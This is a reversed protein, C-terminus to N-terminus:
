KQKLSAERESKKQARGAFLPKGEVDKDNLEDVASRAADADEFNIFGFGKSKGDDEQSPLRKNVIMYVIM